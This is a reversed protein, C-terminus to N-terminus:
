YIGAQRLMGCHIFYPPGTIYGAQDSALYVALGAVDSPQGWRNLPIETMLAKELEPKAEIDEDIPTYIAGPGIKNVTINYKALEVAITCALMRLGGKSACYVANTPMPADEHVSSINIIRGGNGQQIMQKAAAQSVLFAVLCTSTLM